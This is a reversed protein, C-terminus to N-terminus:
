LLAKRTYKTGRINPIKHFAAIERAGIVTKPDAAVSTGLFLYGGVVVDQGLFVVSESTKEKGHRDYFLVVKDEWRCDITVPSKFTAQGFNNLSDFEWYTATQKLHRPM